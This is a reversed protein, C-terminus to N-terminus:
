PNRKWEKIDIGLVEQFLKIIEGRESCPNTDAEHVILCIDPWDTLNLLKKSEVAVESLASIYNEKSESRLQERYRKIFECSEPHRPEKSNTCKVCLIDGFNDTNDVKYPSFIPLRVGLLVGSKNIFIHGPGKGDHYWKPDWMATSVPVLNPPFFRINYFYSIYVNIAM